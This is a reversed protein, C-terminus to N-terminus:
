HLYILYCKTYVELTRIIYGFPGNIFLISYKEFPKAIIINRKVTDVNEEQLKVL